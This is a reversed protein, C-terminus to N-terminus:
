WALISAETDAVTWSSIPSFGRLIIPLTLYVLMVRTPIAAIEVSLRSRIDEKLNLWEPMKQEFYRRSSSRIVATMVGMAVVVVLDQIYTSGIAMTSSPTSKNPKNMIDLVSHYITAMSHSSIDLSSM